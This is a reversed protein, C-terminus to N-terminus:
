GPQLSVKQIETLLKVTRKFNYCISLIEVYLQNKEIGLYRARDAGYSRKATGFFKEIGCRVKSYARNLTTKREKRLSSDSAYVRRIIRPKIKHARCEKRIEESDYAKDKYSAKDDQDLCNYAAQSDHIDASTIKVKNILSSKQDMSAHAKYGYYFKGGKKTWGAKPDRDSVEGAKPNKSNSHIISADVLTGQRLRMGHLDLQENVAGLLDLGLGSLFCRFRCITANDPTDDNLSFGAFRRFSLRDALAEELKEDSLNYMVQLLIVKLMAETPYSPRGGKDIKSENSQSNSEILKTLISFDFVKSIEDLIGSKTKGEILVDVFGKKGIKKRTM